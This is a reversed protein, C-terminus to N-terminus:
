GEEMVFRQFSLESGGGERAFINVARDMIQTYYDHDAFVVFGTRDENFYARSVHELACVEGLIREADEASINKSLKYYRGM